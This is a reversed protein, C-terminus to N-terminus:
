KGYYSWQKKLEEKADDLATKAKDVKEVASKLEKINDYTGAKFDDLEQKAKDLKVKAGDEKTQLDALKYDIKAKFADAYTSGDLVQGAIKIDEIADLTANVTNLKNNDCIEAIQALAKVYESNNYADTKEKVETEAAAGEAKTKELNANATNLAKLKAGNETNPNSKTEDLAKQAAAVDEDAKKKAAQVEAVNSVDIDGGVAAYTKSKAIYSDYKDQYAKQVKDIEAVLTKAANYVALRNAPTDTSKVAKRYKGYAGLHELVADEDAFTGPYSTLIYGEVKEWITTQSFMSYELGYGGDDVSKFMEEGFLAKVAAEFAAIKTAQEAEKADKMNSISTEWAKRLGKGDSYKGGLEKEEATQAFKNAIDREYEAAIKSLEGGYKLVNERLTKTSTLIESNKKVLAIITKNKEDIYTKADDKLDEMLFKFLNDDKVAFKPMNATTVASDAYLKALGDTTLAKKADEVAKNYADNGDKVAKDYAAQAKNVADNYENQAKAADEEAAKIKSKGLGADFVFYSTYKAQAAEMKTKLDEVIAKVTKGGDYSNELAARQVKEESDKIDLAQKEATLENWKTVLASYNTEADKLIDKVHKNLAVAEDYAQQKQNLVDEFHEVSLLDAADALDKLADEYDTTKNDVETIASALASNILGEAELRALEVKNKTDNTKVDTENDKIAKLYDAKADDLLKKAAELKKEADVKATEVDSDKAASMKAQDIEEKLKQTADQVAQLANALELAAAKAEEQKATANVVAVYAKEVDAKANLLAANAQVEQAAANRLNELSDPEDTDVCSSLSASTMLALAVAPYLIFKRKM